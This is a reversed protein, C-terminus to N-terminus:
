PCCGNSFKIVEGIRTSSFVFFNMLQATELSMERTQYCNCPSSNKSELLNCLLEINTFLFITEEWDIYSFSIDVTVYLKPFDSPQSPGKFIYIFFFINMYSTHTHARETTDSEAVGHAPAWCAGRDMSKELCSYQVPNAM